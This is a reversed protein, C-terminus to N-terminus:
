LFHFSTCVTGKAKSEIPYTGFTLSFYESYSMHKTPPHAFLPKPFTNPQAFIFSKTSNDISSYSSDNKIDHDTAMIYYDGKDTIESLNSFYEVDYGLAMWARKYGEYIWKGAHAPHNKIYVRM